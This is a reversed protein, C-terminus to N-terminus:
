LTAKIKAVTEKTDASQAAALKAKLAEAEGNGSKIFAQVGKVLEIIQRDKATVEGKVDSVVQEMEQPTIDGSRKRMLGIMGTLGGFGALGLGMSLLGTESFLMEEKQKAIELNKAAIDHLLNYDLNNKEQLQQLALTNVEYAAVIARALKEAKHLNAYGNFENADVVGAKDVYSIAQKNLEAPTIYESLAVCGIGSIAMLGLLVYAVIKM